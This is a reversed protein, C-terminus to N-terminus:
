YSAMLGFMVHPQEDLEEINQTKPDVAAAARTGRAAV